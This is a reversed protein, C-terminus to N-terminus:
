DNQAFPIPVEIYSGPVSAQIARVVADLQLKVLPWRTNGLIVLSIKRSSLNQKYRNNKDTSLLVQYGADEARQILEGNEPEHWGIQRDLSVEHEDLAAAIPKTAGDDFLLKM